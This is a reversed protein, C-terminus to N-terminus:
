RAPAIKKGALSFILKLSIGSITKNYFLNNDKTDLSNYFTKDGNPIPKDTYTNVIYDRMQSVRSVDYFLAVQVDPNIFYGFGIGGDINKNFSVDPAVNVLTLAANFSVHNWFSLGGAEKLQNDLEKLDNSKKEIEQKTQTMQSQDKKSTIATL